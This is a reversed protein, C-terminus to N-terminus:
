WTWRTTEWARQTHAHITHRTCQVCYESANACLLRIFHTGTELSFEHLTRVTRSRRPIPRFVSCCVFFHYIFLTNRIKRMRKTGSIHDYFKRCFFFFYKHGARADQASSVYIYTTPTCHAWVFFYMLTECIRVFQIWNLRAYANIVCETCDHRRKIGM